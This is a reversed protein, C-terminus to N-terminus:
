GKTEPAPQDGTQPAPAAKTSTENDVADNAKVTSKDDATKEEENPLKLASADAAAAGTVSAPLATSTQEGALLAQLPTLRAMADDVAATIAAAAHAIQEAVGGADLVLKITSTSSAPAAVGSGTSPVFDGVREFIHRHKLLLENGLEDSVNIEDGPKLTEPSVASVNVQDHVHLKV